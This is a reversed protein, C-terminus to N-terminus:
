AAQCKAKCRECGRLSWRCRGCGLSVRVQTSADLAVSDQKEEDQKRWPIASDTNETRKESYVGGEARRRKIGQFLVLSENHVTRLSDNLMTMHRKYQAECADRERKLKELREQMECNARTAIVRDDAKTWEKLKSTTLNPVIQDDIDDDVSYMVYAGSQPEISKIVCTWKKLRCTATKDKAGPWSWMSGPMQITRPIEFVRVYLRSVVKRNDTRDNFTHAVRFGYPTRAYREFDENLGKRQRKGFTICLVVLNPLRALLNIWARQAEEFDMGGIIGGCFDLNLGVVADCDEKSVLTNTVKATNKRTTILYEIGPQKDVRAGHVGYGFKEKEMAGTYTVTETGYLLQQSLTVAPDIEFTYFRPTEEDALHAFGRECAERNEGNGDLSFIKQRSSTKYCSTLTEVFLAMRRASAEHEKGVLAEDHKARIKGSVPRWNVFVDDCVLDKAKLMFTDGYEDAVVVVWADTNAIGVVTADFPGDRNTRLREPLRLHVGCQEEMCMRAFEIGHQFQNNPLVVNKKETDIYQCRRHQMDTEFSHAGTHFDLKTCGPTQCTKAKGMATAMELQAPDVEADDNAHDGVDGVNTLDCSGESETEEGDSLTTVRASDGEELTSLLSSYFSLSSM